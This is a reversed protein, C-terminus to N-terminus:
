KEIDPPVLRVLAAARIHATKLFGSLVFPVALLRHAPPAPICTARNERRYQRRIAFGVDCDLAYKAYIVTTSSSTIPQRFSTPQEPVSGRVIVIRYRRVLM